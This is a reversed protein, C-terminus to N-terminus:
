FRDNKMNNRRKGDNKMRKWHGSMWKLWRDDNEIMMMRLQWDNSMIQLWWEHTGVVMGVMMCWKWGCSMMKMWSWDKKIWWWGPSGPEPCRASPVPCWEDNEDVLLWRRNMMVCRAGFVLCRAGSVPGRAGFFGARLYRIRVIEALVGVTLSRNPFAATMSCAHLSM